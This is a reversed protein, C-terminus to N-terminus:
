GEITQLPHAVVREGRQAEEGVVGEEGHEALAQEDQLFQDVGAVLGGIRPSHTPGLLHRPIVHPADQGSLGAFSGGGYHQM